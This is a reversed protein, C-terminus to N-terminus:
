HRVRHRTFTVGSGFTGADLLELDLRLGSPLAATGGGIVVPHRYLLVEDVLGDVLARAALTPGGISLQRTATSKLTRVEDPDFATRVLTRRGVPETLTSSYVVKDTSGWLRRYDAAVPDRDAEPDDADWYRLVEYMRRGLLHTGVGRELDNVHAHVEADPAAWEFSGLEDAVYGDLSCIATYLLAAM